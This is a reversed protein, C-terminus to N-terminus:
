RSDNKINLVDIDLSGKIKLNEIGSLITRLEMFYGRILTIYNESYM